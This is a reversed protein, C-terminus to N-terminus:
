WLVGDEASVAAITKSEERIFQAGPIPSIGSVCDEDTSDLFLARRNIVEVDVAVATAQKM